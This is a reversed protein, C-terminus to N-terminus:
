FRGRCWNRWRRAGSQRGRRVEEEMETYEPQAGAAIVSAAIAAIKRALQLTEVSTGAASTTGKRLLRWAHPLAVAFSSWVIATIIVLIVITVLGAFTLLARSVSDMLVEDGSRMSSM